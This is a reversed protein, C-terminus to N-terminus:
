LQVGVDGAVRLSTGVDGWLVRGASGGVAVVRARCVTTTLRQHGACPREVETNDEQNHVEIGHCHLVSDQHRSVPLMQTRITHGTTCTITSVLTSLHHAPTYERPIYASDPDLLYQNPYKYITFIHIYQPCTYVGYTNTPM